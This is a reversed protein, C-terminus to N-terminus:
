EGRLYIINERAIRRALSGIQNRLARIKSISPYLDHRRPSMAGGWTQICPPYLTSSSARTSSM